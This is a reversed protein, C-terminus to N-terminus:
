KQVSSNTEKQHAIKHVRNQYVNQVWNACTLIVRRINTGYRHWNIKAAMKHTLFESSHKDSHYRKFLQKSPLDTIM